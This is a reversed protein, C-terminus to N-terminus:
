HTTLKMRSIQERIEKAKAEALAVMAPDIDALTRTLLNAFRGRGETLATSAWTPSALKPAEHESRSVEFVLSGGEAGRAEISLWVCERRDEAQSPRTGAKQSLWVSAVFVLAEAVLQQALASIFDSLLDRVLQDSSVELMMVVPQPLGPLYFLVHPPVDDRPSLTSVLEQLRQTEHEQIIQISFTMATREEALRATLM